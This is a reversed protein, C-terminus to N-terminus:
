KMPDASRAAFTNLPITAPRVADPNYEPAFAVNFYPIIYTICRAHILHYLRLSCMNGELMYWWGNLCGAVM